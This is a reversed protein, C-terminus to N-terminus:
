ESVETEIPPFGEAYLTPNDEKTQKEEELQKLKDLHAIIYADYMAELQGGISLKNFWKSAKEFVNHKKSFERSFMKDPINM